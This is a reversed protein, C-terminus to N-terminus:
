IRRTKMGRNFVKLKFWLTGVGVFCNLVQDLAAYFVAIVVGSLM